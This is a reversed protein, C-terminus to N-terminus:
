DRENLRFVLHVAVDIGEQLVVTSGGPCQQVACATQSSCHLLRKFCPWCWVVTGNSAQRWM